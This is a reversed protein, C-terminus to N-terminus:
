GAFRAARSRGMSASRKSYYLEASWRAAETLEAPRSRAPAASTALPSNEMTMAPSASVEPASFGPSAGSAV